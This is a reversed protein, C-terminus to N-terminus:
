CRPNLLVCFCFQRKSMCAHLQRCTYTHTGSLPPFLVQANLGFVIKSALGDKADLIGSPLPNDGFAPAEKDLFSYMYSPGLSHVAKVQESSIADCFLYVPGIQGLFPFSDQISGLTDDEENQSLIIKTGISCSTLLENVKAYRLCSFILTLLFSILAPFFIGRLVHFAKLSLFYFEFQSYNFTAHYRCRESSVLDGDLYCRLLSGGSFARGITHTICLFHWKKRVLNVHM